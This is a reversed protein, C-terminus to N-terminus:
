APIEQWSDTDSSTEVAALVRQVQLGDAFSPAPTPARPLTASWTSSRTPSATSTASAPSGTAVLRRRLPTAARDRRHQPVRGHDAPEDGDFYHLLNMDEFDFALSGAIRQDRHPDREQSRQRVPDGRLGGARRRPVGRPVVAADDVTVPGRGPAPPGPCDPTSPPCRDSTSSPRCGGPSARRDRRRHHVPHPRRHARRHRGAGGLRGEGQGPAVVAAGGPRRDLGPPVARPRPPDTGLRGEAVLQRALGIAPVRRYTFGVMSRVGAAAAKEAARPWRRPRRSPTPWRSRACCTSAPRSRPSPSRRTPTVPLACTSSTSTTATSSRRGRRRPRSGGWGTPRLRWGAADRGALATM